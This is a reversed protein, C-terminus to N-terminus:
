SPLGQRAVREIEKALRLLDAPRTFVNPAVFLGQLDPRDRLAGFVWLGHEDQLYRALRGADVGDVVVHVIACSHAPDMSTLLRVRPAGALQDTWLRSLYQLRAQKNAPGIAEYFDLAEGVTAMPAPSQTGVRELKRIDPSRPDSASYLPWLETVRERRVFLFGTGLPAALFKHLSTAYYDCGLAKINCVIHGFALAGDVILRIGRAQALEGIAAVPMIHGPGGTVHSCLIARTRPTLANRFAEVIASQDTVPWKMAVKTVTLGHRSARQELADLVSYYDFDTTVIEDGHELPLGAIVTILGETTGRTLAIEEPDCNVQGALRTRIRERKAGVERGHVLPSSNILEISRIFGDLVVRPMPDSAGTNLIAHHADLSFAQQVAVWFQEDRAIQDPSMGATAQALAQLRSESPFGVLAASPVGTVVRLFQRRQHARESGM